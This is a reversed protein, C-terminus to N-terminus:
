HLSMKDIPSFSLTGTRDEPLELILLDYDLEILNNRISEGNLESLKYEVRLFDIFEYISSFSLSAKYNAFKDQWFRWEQHQMSVVMYEETYILDLKM